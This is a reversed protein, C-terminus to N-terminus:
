EIMSVRNGAAAAAEELAAEPFDVVALAEEEV